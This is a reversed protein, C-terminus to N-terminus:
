SLKRNRMFEAVCSQKPEPPTITWGAAAMGDIIKMSVELRGASECGETLELIIQSISSALQLKQNNTM